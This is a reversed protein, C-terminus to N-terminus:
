VKSLLHFDYAINNAQCNKSFPSLQTPSSEDLCLRYECCAAVVIKLCTCEVLRLRLDLLSRLTLLDHMKRFLSPNFFSVSPIGIINGLNEDFALRETDTVTELLDNLLYNVKQRIETFLISM